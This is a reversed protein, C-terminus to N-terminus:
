IFFYVFFVSRRLFYFGHTKTNPTFNLALPICELITVTRKRTVTLPEMALFVWYGVLVGVFITFSTCCLLLDNPDMEVAVWLMQPVGAPIATTLLLPSSRVSVVKGGIRRPAPRIELTRSEDRPGDM